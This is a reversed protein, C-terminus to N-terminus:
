AGEEGPAAPTPSPTRLKEIAERIGPAAPGDPDSQLYKEWLALGKEKENLDEIYVIGLNYTSQPHLPNIALAKKFNAVAKDVAGIKRYMIAQDCLVDPQDPKLEIAKAYAEISKQPQDSDFYANGLGIWLSLNKPNKQLLAKAEEIATEIPKGETFPSEIGDASAIGISAATLTLVVLAIIRNRM